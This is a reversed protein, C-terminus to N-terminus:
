TRFGFVLHNRAVAAMILMRLSHDAFLLRYKNLAAGCFRELQFEFGCECNLVHAQLAERGAERLVGESRFGRAGRSKWVWESIYFKNIIKMIPEM